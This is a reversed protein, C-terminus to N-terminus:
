CEEVRREMGSFPWCVHLRISVYRLLNDPRPYAKQQEGNIGM